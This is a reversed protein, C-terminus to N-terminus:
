NSSAFRSPECLPQWAPNVNDGVRAIEQPGTGDAKISFITANSAFAIRTGDPSWSLAGGEDSTAWVRHVGSGDVNIAWIAAHNSRNRAFAIRTGDPSWAPFTGNRALLRRDGGHANIVYIDGSTLAMRRGNGSVFAIWKGDPSWAPLSARHRVLPRRGTGDGNMLDIGGSRDDDFAITRGNPSWAPFADSGGRPTLRERGSGDSNVVYIIKRGLNGTFAIRTGDPSWAPYSNIWKDRTLRRRSSGDANVTCIDGTCSYAVKTSAERTVGTSYAAGSISGAIVMALAGVASFSYRNM